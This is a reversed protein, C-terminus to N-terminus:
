GDAWSHARDLGRRGNREEDSHEAPLEQEQRPPMFALPQAGALSQAGAGFTDLCRRLQCECQEFEISSSSVAMASDRALTALCGIWGISTTTGSPRQTAARANSMAAANVVFPIHRVMASQFMMPPIM